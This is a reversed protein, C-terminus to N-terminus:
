HSVLADSGLYKCLLGLTVSMNSIESGCCVWNARAFKVLISEQVTCRFMSKFHSAYVHIEGLFLELM